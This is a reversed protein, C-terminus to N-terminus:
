KARKFEAQGTQKENGNSITFTGHMADGDLTLDYDFTVERGPFHMIARYNLKNGSIRASDVPQQSNKDPGYTGTLQGGKMAFIVYTYATGGGGTMTGQWPGAIDAGFMGTALTLVAIVLFTVLRRTM